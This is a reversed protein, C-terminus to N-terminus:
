LFLITVHPFDNVLNHESSYWVDSLLDLFAHVVEFRFHIESLYPRRDTLQFLFLQKYWAKLTIETLKLLRWLQIRYFHLINVFGIQRILLFEILQFFLYFKDFLRNLIQIHTRPLLM